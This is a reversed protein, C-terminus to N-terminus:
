PGNRFDESLEKALKQEKASRDTNSAAREAAAMLAPAAPRLLQIWRRREGAATDILEAVLADTIEQSELSIPSHMAIVAAAPLWSVPKVHSADDKTRSTAAAQKIHQQMAAVISTREPRNWIAVRIADVEDPPAQLVYTSLWELQSSDEPLLVLSLNLRARQNRNSEAEAVAQHLLHSLRHRYPQMQSIISPVMGVDATLLQGVLQRARSRGRWEYGVLAVVALLV